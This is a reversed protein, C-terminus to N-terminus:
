SANPFLERFKKLFEKEARKSSMPVIKTKIPKPLENWELDSKNMLDRKETALIVKDYILIQSLIMEVHFLGFKGCIRNRLMSELNVYDVFEKCEKLPSPVDSIYTETADHLLGFQKESLTQGLNAVLISHQAISYFEKCHGNFRCQLSLSHAIDEINITENGFYSTEFPYFAKGSYTQLWILGHRQNQDLLTNLKLECLLAQEILKERMKFAIQTKSLLKM